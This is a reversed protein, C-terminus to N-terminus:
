HAGMYALVAVVVLAEILLARARVMGTGGGTVAVGLTVM